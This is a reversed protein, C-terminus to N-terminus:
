GENEPNRMASALRVLEAAVDRLLMAASQRDEASLEDPLLLRERLVRLGSVLDLTSM